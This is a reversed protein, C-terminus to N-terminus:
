RTAGIVVTFWIATIADLHEHTSKALIHDVGFLAEGWDYWRERTLCYVCRFGFEDRLWEKFSFYNSYGGPGHIREHEISPYDYFM